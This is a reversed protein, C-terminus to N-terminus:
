PLVVEIAHKRALASLAADFTVLTAGMGDALALLYCDSIVKPSSQSRFTRTLKRFVREVSPPEAIFSVRADELWRDYLQWAEALSLTGQAMASDSCLLRLMGLQTHRCFLLAGSDGAEDLWRWADRHHVYREVSLALWVNLDPFFSNM